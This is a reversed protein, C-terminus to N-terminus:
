ASDNKSIKLVNNDTCTFHYKSTNYMERMKYEQKFFHYIYVAMDGPLEIVQVKSDVVHETQETCFIVTADFILMGNKRSLENSSIFKQLVEINHENTMFPHLNIQIGPLM